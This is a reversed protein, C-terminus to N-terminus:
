SPLYKKENIKVEIDPDLARMRDITVQCYVPDLDMGYCKRDLQHAAVMTSGSGIFGDVVIEGARSSNIILPALLLIPKMTPHSESRTPKDCHIVSTKTKESMIQEVFKILEDKKLKKYDVYDEIVTSKTRDNTFYHSAGPKWGYLCPEHQWQYDQRGMVFSNKVWILCQKLMLGSDQFAM